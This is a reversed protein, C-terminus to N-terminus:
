NLANHNSAGFFQFHRRFREKNVRPLLFRTRCRDSRRPVLAHLPHCNDEAATSFLRHVIQAAEERICVPRGGCLRGAHNAIRQLRDLDGESANCWAPFAYLLNPLLVARSVYALDVNSCNHRLQKLMFLTRRSKKDIEDVWKHWKLDNSLVVGLVKTDRVREIVKGALVAEPVIPPHQHSHLIMEKSKAGNIIMANDTCWKEVNNLEAQFDDSKGVSHTMTQDDAYKILKTQTLNIPQLDNTFISFLQPGLVTGQPIGRSVPLWTSCITEVKVRQRRNKLFNYVYLVFWGPFSYSVLKGVILAHEVTDFAKSYDLFAVRLVKPSRDDLEKLWHNTALTLAVTTSAKPRYAFQDPKVVYQFHDMVLNIVLRELIKSFISTLSIPRIDGTQKPLPVKPLLTVNAEKWIEPIPNGALILNFIYCLPISLQASFSKIFWGPVGDPGSATNNRVKSIKREITHVTLKPAYTLSACTPAQTPEILVGQSFRQVLDANIKDCAQQICPFQNLLSDIGHSNRGKTANIERRWKRSGRNERKLHALKAKKIRDDIDHTLTRYLERKNERYATERRTILRKILATMWPPDKNTLKVTRSPFCQLSKNVKEYFVKVSTGFEGCNLAHDWENNRLEDAAKRMFQARRDFLSVRRNVLKVQDCHKPFVTIVVHDSTHVPAHSKPPEFLHPKCTLVVDLTANQRTNFHVMQTLGFNRELALTPCRNLDGLLTVHALPSLHVFKQMMLDLNEVASDSNGKPPRYVAAVIHMYSLKYNSRLLACVAELDPSCHSSSDLVSFQGSHVFLSVGGGRQYERCAYLHQYGDIALCSVTDRSFWTETLACVSAQHAAFLPAIHNIKNGASRLNTLLFHPMMNVPLRKPARQVPVVYRERRPLRPAMEPKTPRHRVRAPRHTGAEWLSHCGSSCVRPCSAYPKVTLLEARSYAIARSLNAPSRLFLTM